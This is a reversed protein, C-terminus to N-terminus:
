FEQSFSFYSSIYDCFASISIDMKSKELHTYISLTTSVDSHGLLRQASLVDVGSCYLLTAYTHRFMHPTIKDVRKKVGKHDYISRESQGKTAYKHSLSNNFSEWLRKWSTPTHMDGDIESCVFRSNSQNRYAKLQILIEEPIPIIRSKGNKTGKKVNYKNSAIRETSKVVSLLGKEFDIDSWQLPILEGARLGCFTMVLAAVRARHSTNIIWDIEENTLARRTSQPANRPIKIKLAPNKDYGSNDSAYEFIKIAVNKIDKLLKKSSPKHTKPNEVALNSILEDLHMPKILNIPTNGFFNMLYNVQSEIAKIYTVSLGIFKQKKWKNAWEGFSSNEDLIILEM